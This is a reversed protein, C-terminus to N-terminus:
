SGLTVAAPELEGSVGTWADLLAAFGTPSTGDVSLRLAFGEWPLDILRALADPEVAASAMTWRAFHRVEVKDRALERLGQHIRANLVRQFVSDVGDEPGEFYQLFRRGDFMLVGTVGAVKNFGMAARLIQDIDSTEIGEIADSVYAVAHLPM